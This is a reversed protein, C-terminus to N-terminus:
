ARLLKDVTIPLDRIRKGTAHFVANAVAAAAGTIGIEGIGKVGVPNVIDDAEEIFISDINKIDANVPVHYESLSPNMIRGNRQDRATYEHLAMSIGWIMGGVLQSRATKANIIRGAAFAGTMRSLRVEGLAEDVRVEVFQAGFAYMSYHEKQDGPTSETTAELTKSSSRKLLASYTEGKRPNSQLYMRGNEVLIDAEAAGTLPSKPDNIALERAQKLVSQAAKMVASGTSATTRSGGSIPTQPLKTDGASLTILDPSIGLETAAIQVM